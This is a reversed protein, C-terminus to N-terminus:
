TCCVKEHERLEILKGTFNCGTNAKSCQTEFTTVVGELAFNRCGQYESECLPCKIINKKCESCVGHGLKCMEIPINFYNMCVPCTVNRLFESTSPQPPSENTDFIEVTINVSLSNRMWDTVLGNEITTKKLKSISFADKISKHESIPCNETKFLCKTCHMRENFFEITQNRVIIKEPNKEATLELTFKKSTLLLSTVIIHISPLRPSGHSPFLGYDWSLYVIFPYNNKVICKVLGLQLDKTIVFHCSELCYESHVDLLHKVLQTPKIVVLCHHNPCYIIKKSCNMEHEITKDGFLTTENCNPYICPFRIYQALMEFSHNRSNHDITVNTCRGCRHRTGQPNVITIPPVSLYGNCFFCKLSKIRQTSITMTLEIREEEVNNRGIFYLM